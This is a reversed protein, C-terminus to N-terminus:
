RSWIRGAAATNFRDMAAEAKERWIKLADAQEKKKRIADHIAKLRDYHETGKACSKLLQANESYVMIQGCGKREALNPNRGVRRLWNVTQDVTLVKLEECLVMRHGKLSPAVAGLSSLSHFQGLVGLFLKCGACLIRVSAPNNANKSFVDPINPDHFNPSLILGSM